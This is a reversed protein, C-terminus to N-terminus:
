IDMFNLTEMTEGRSVFLSYLIEFISQIAHCYITIGRRMHNVRQPIRCGCPLIIVLMQVPREVPNVITRPSVLASFGQAVLAAQIYVFGLWFSSAICSGYWVGVTTEASCWRGLLVFATIIVYGVSLMATIMITGKLAVDLESNSAEHLQM